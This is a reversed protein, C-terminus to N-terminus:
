IKMQELEKRARQTDPHDSGLIKDMLELAQVRLSLGKKKDGCICNFEALIQLSSITLPHEAGLVKYRLSYVREATEIAKEHQNLGLYIHGLGQLSGLTTPHEPGLIKSRTKYVRLNLELAKEYQKLKTYTFAVAQLSGLTSPHEPGLIKCRLDYAKQNLPLAKKFKELKGYTYAYGQLSGLTSPHEPGFLRCRLKYIRKGLALARKYKGLQNYTYVIGQLATLSNQHLRGFSKKSLNYIELNQELAKKYNGNENYAYALSQLAEIVKEKQKSFCRKYYKAIKESWVIAQSYDLSVGIGDHYMTFLKEMAEPLESNGAFTILEVARKKDIEVDIGDLYALGVLFLHEASSNDTRTIINSIAQSFIKNFTQDIKIIEPLDNFKSDLECKDTQEMEIPLIPKSAKKAYPYEVSMVYNPKGDPEELISPAVLLAFIDSKDLAKLINDSFSEGPVLFEDYWIAIDRCGPIEHILRMLKDAYLKDKKRYSLFIYADFATRIKQVLENGVLISDLFKKLKKEYSDFSSNTTADLYQRNGFKDKRSYIADIGSDILIPLIPINANIAFPIDSDMARNSKTLLKLSVPVVFLNMRALETSIDDNSSTQDDNYFIACDHTKFIQNCIKDFNECFDEPHSTFFVRPKGNIHLNNKSRCLLM